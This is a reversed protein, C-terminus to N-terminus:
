IVGSARLRALDAEVLGLGRLVEDTDEGPVPPRIYRRGSGPVSIPTDVFAVEEGSSLRCRRVMERYRVQPDDLAEELHNVHAFALDAKELRLEWEALPRAAFDSEILERLATEHESRSTATAFRPDAMWEKHGLAACLKAWPSQDIVAIVVYRGDACKFAGYTPSHGGSRQPGPVSGDLFYYASFYPIMALHGDLLSLDVECGDALSEQRARLGTLVAISAWM